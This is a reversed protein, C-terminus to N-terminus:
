RLTPHVQCGLLRQDASQPDVDAPRFAHSAEVTVAVWAADAPIGNFTVRRTENPQLPDAWTEGIAWTRCIGGTPGVHITLDITQRGRPRILVRGQETGMTWFSEGEAYIGSPQLPPHDPATINATLTGAARWEEPALVRGSTYAFARRRGPEFRELLAIRGRVVTATREAPLYARPVLDRMQWETETFMPLTATLPASGQVADALRSV